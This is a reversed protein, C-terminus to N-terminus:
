DFITREKQEYKSMDETYNEVKTDARSYLMLLIKSAAFLQIANFIILFVDGQKFCFFCINIIAVIIVSLACAFRSKSTKAIKACLKNILLFIPLLIKKWLAELIAAKNLSNSSKSDTKNDDLDDFMNTRKLKPTPLDYISDKINESHKKLDSLKEKERALFTDEEKVGSDKEKNNNKESPSVSSSIIDQEMYCSEKQRENDNNFM